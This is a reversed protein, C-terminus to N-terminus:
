KNLINWSFCSFLGDHLLSSSLPCRHSYGPLPTESVWPIFVRWTLSEFGFVLVVLHYWVSVRTSGRTAVLDSHLILILFLRPTLSHGYLSDYPCGQYTLSWETCGPICPSILSPRSPFSELIQPSGASPTVYCCLPNSDCYLWLLPSCTPFSHPFTWMTDLFSCQQEYKVLTCYTTWDNIPCKWCSNALEM